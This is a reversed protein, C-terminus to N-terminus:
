AARQAVAWLESARVVQDAAHDWTFRSVATERARAGLGRRLPENQLLAEVAGALAVRDAPPVVVGADGVIAPLDGQATTVVPLGAAMYEIVKLPCFYFFPDPPYPALAVTGGMVRLAAEDPELPGTVQVADIVGMARAREVVREAGPGGGILLLNVNRGRRALEVLLPPLVEAGHWPRPHGLFVLTEPGGDDLAAGARFRDPDCGNRVVVTGRKTRRVSAVYQRLPESVSVVLDAQRILHREVIDDGAGVTWPRHRSAEYFLPANVELVFPTGLTRAWRLGDDHGLAYREYVLDPVGFRLGNSRLAGRELRHVPFSGDNRSGEGPDLVFMDIDHGQLALANALSGLHVSGGKGGHLPIGEDACIVFIKV